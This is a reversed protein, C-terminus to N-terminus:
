SYFYSQSHKSLDPGLAALVGLKLHVFTTYWLSPISRQVYWACRFRCPASLVATTTATM